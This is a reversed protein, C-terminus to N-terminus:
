GDYGPLAFAFSGGAAALHGSAEGLLAAIADQAEVVGVFPAPDADIPQNTDIVIGNPGRTNLVIFLDMAQITKAFGRIGENEAATLGPVVDLSNLVINANRLNAYRPDWQSGGFPPLARSM